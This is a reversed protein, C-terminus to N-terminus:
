ILNLKNRNLAVMKNKDDLYNLISLQQFEPNLEKRHKDELSFGKFISDIHPTLISMKKYDQSGNPLPDINVPTLFKMTNSDELINKILKNCDDSKLDYKKSLISYIHTFSYWFNKNQYDQEFLTISNKGPKFQIKENKGALRLLKKERILQKDWVHFISDPYNKHVFLSCENLKKLIFNRAKINIM